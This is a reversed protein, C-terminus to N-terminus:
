KNGTDFSEMCEKSCFKKDKSFVNYAVGIKSPFYTGCNPCSIMEDELLNTGSTDNRNKKKKFFSSFLSFVVWFLLAYLIFRFM